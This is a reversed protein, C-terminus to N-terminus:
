EDAADRCGEPRVTCKRLSARLRDKFREEARGSAEPIIAARIFDSLGLRSIEARGLLTCPVSSSANIEELTPFLWCSLRQDTQFDFPSIWSINQSWKQLMMTYKEPTAADQLLHSPCLGRAQPKREDKDRTERCIFWNEQLFPSFHM